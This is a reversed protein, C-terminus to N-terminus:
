RERARADGRVGAEHEVAVLDDRLDGPAAHAGDIKSPESARTAELPEHRDLQHVLVQGVLRLEDRHEEVLRACRRANMMRVRDADHVHARARDAVVEHHAVHVPEGQPLHDRMGGELVVRPNAERRAEDGVREVTQVGRVRGLVGLARRQVDHV